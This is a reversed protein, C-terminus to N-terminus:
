QAWLAPDLAVDREVSAVDVHVKYGGATNDIDIRAPTERVSGDRERPHGDRRGAADVTREAPRPTLDYAAQLDGAMSPLIKGLASANPDKIAEICACRGGVSSWTSSRSGRRGSRACGFAIRGSSPSSGACRGSRDARRSPSGISPACRTGRRRRPCCRRRCRAARRTRARAALLLLLAWLPSFFVLKIVRLTDRFGHFHSAHDAAYITKIPVEVLPLKM